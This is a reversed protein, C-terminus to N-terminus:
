GKGSVAKQKAFEMLLTIDVNKSVVLGGSDLKRDWKVGYDFRDITTTAKFGMKANGRPDTMTGILKADLIVEKTVDRITLMGTIKFTGDGTKEFTSSKFSITPFSDATFFNGSRLDKDRFENDTNVSATKITAEVASASFDDKGQTLTVDFDNFRGTVESIVLHTVSFTVSSHSKDAKWMTQAGLTSLWFFALLASMFVRKM